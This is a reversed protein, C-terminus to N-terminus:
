KSNWVHTKPAHYAAWKESVYEANKDSKDVTGGSMLTDIEQESLFLISASVGYTRCWHAKEAESVLIALSSGNAILTANSFPLRPLSDKYGMALVAAIEDTMVEPVVVYYNANTKNDVPVIELGLRECAAIQEQPCIGHWGPNQNGSNYSGIHITKM